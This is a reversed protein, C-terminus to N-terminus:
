ARLTGDVETFFGERTLEGVLLAFEGADVPQRGARTEAASLRALAADATLGPDALVERLLEARRQRHSGEFATQRAYSASRRAPDAERGLTAKLHAGYDLLAYYWTRVGEEPCAARVLPILDRDPVRVAEPFFEHIFVTRVNTELYVAPRDYAFAIIGAATAPGVGPLAELEAATEPLRGAHEASVLECARKLNLARRNYGMGQWAALVDATGAAALADVTPFQALFRPWREMVRSVRTQQLMIESVLIGYADDTRRWPMDRYLEEGAALVRARFGDISSTM